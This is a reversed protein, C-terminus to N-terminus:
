ERSLPFGDEMRVIWREHMIPAAKANVVPQIPGFAPTLPFVTLHEGLAPAALIRLPAAQRKTVRLTRLMASARKYEFVLWFILDLTQEDLGLGTPSEVELDFEAWHNEGTLPILKIIPFGYEAFIQHLGWHRGALWQWAWARQVRLRYQGDNELFHRPIGRARGHLVVSEKEGLAPFFQDRLKLGSEYLADLEGGEAEALLAL